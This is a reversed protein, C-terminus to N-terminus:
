GGQDSLPVMTGNRETRAGSTKLLVGSRGHVADWQETWGPLWLSCRGIFYVITLLSLVSSLWRSVPPCCRSSTGSPQNLIKFFAHKNGASKRKAVTAKYTIFQLLLQTTCSRQKHSPEGTTTVACRAKDGHASSCLAHFAKPMNSFM